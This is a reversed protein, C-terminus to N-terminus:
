PMGPVGTFYFCFFRFTHAFNMGQKRKEPEMALFGM